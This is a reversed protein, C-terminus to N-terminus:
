EGTRKDWTRFADKRIDLHCFGDYVGLGGIQLEGDEAMQLAVRYVEGSTLGAVRFDAARGEHHQSNPSVGRAGRRIREADYPAPRYGGAEIVHVAAGGLEARPAREPTATLFKGAGTQM